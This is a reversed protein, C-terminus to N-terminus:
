TAEKMKKRESLYVAKNKKVAKIFARRFKNKITRRLAIKRQELKKQHYLEEASILSVKNKKVFDVFYLEKNNEDRISSMIRKDM